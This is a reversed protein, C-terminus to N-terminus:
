KPEEDALDEAEEDTPEYGIMDDATPEFDDPMYDEDDEPLGETEEIELQEIAQEDEVAEPSATSMEEESAAEEEKQVAQEKPDSM